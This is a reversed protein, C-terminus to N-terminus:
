TLETIISYSIMKNHEIKGFIHNRGINFKARKSAKSGTQNPNFREKYSLIVAVMPFTM